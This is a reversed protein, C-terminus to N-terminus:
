LALPPSRASNGSSPRKYGDPRVASLRELASTSTSSINSQPAAPAGMSSSSCRHTWHAAAEGWSSSSTAPHDLEHVGMPSPMALREGIPMSLDAHMSMRRKRKPIADMPCRVPFSGPTPRRGSNQMLESAPVLTGKAVALRVVDGIIWEPPMPEWKLDPPAFRFVVLWPGNCTITNNVLRFEGSGLEAPAHKWFGASLSNSSYHVKMDETLARVRWKPVDIAERCAECVKNKFHAKGSVFGPTCYIGDNCAICAGWCQAPELQESLWESPDVGLLSGDEEPLPVSM